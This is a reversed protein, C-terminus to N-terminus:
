TPGVCDGGAFFGIPGSQFGGYVGAMPASQPAYYVPPTYAVAPPTSREEVVVTGKPTDYYKRYTKGDSVYERISKTPALRAPFAAIIEADTANPSLRRCKLTEVDGVIITPGVAEPFFTSSMVEAGAVRRPECQCFVVLAKNNRQAAYFTANYSSPVQAVVPLAFALSVLVSRFM